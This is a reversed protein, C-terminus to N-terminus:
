LSVLTLFSANRKRSSKEKRECRDEKVEQKKESRSKKSKQRTVSLSISM